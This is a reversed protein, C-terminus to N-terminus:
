TKQEHLYVRLMVLVFFLLIKEALAYHTFSLIVM